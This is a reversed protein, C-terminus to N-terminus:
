GVTKQGMGAPRLDNEGALVGALNDVYFAWGRSHDSMESGPGESFGSHVLKLETGAGKPVLTWTVLTAGEPLNFTYVVKRGPVLERFVGERIHEQDDGRRELSEFWFRIKGGIRVDAEVRTPFWRELMRPDTLVQYVREPPASLLRTLEISNKPEM